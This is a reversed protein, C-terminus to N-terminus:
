TLDPLSDNACHPCAVKNCCSYSGDLITQRVKNAMEGNWIEELSSELLNGVCQYTWGCGVKVDGNPYIYAQKFALECVKM